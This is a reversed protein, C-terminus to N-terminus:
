RTGSPRICQRNVIPSQRNRKTSRGTKWLKNSACIMGFGACPKLSSREPQDHNQEQSCPPFKKLPPFIIKRLHESTEDPLPEHWKKGRWGFELATNELADIAEEKVPSFGAKLTAFWDDQRWDFAVTRLAGRTLEALPHHAASERRDLFFPIAYRRFERALAKHCGDLNRVIVACDRFRNGARIFKLIERAAFTAETETNPCVVLSIASQRNGIAM